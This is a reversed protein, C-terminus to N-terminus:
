IDIFQVVSDLRVVVMQQSTVFAFAEAQFNNVRSANTVFAVCLHLM